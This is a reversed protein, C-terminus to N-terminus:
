ESNGAMNLEKCILVGQELGFAFYQKGIYEGYDLVLNMVKEAEDFGLKEELARNVKIISKDVKQILKHINDRNLVSDEEDDMNDYIFMSLDYLTTKKM